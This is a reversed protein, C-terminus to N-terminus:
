AYHDGLAPATDSTSTIATQNKSNSNMQDSQDKVNNQASMNTQWYIGDGIPKGSGMFIPFAWLWPNSGFIQRWNDKLGIDYKSKYELGQKDLNEITTKNETALKIHFKLFATMLVCIIANFLFSLMIICNRKLRVDNRDIFRYNFGWKLAAYFDYGMTFFTTYTIILVYVLLLLFFKRNWFGVCNNIWPCHHDMNLVCRNCASCHHCREPKFVNCM